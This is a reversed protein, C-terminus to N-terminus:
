FIGARIALATLATSKHLGLKLMLNAQHAQVTKVSIGLDLGIERSSHGRGIRALVERERATLRDRRSVADADLANAATRVPALNRQRRASSLLAFELQTRKIPKLVYQDVETAISRTLSDRDDFCTTVIIFVDPDLKRIEQSMVLGDMRPMWIDTIVVQAPQARFAALGEAGDTAIVVKGVWRALLLAMQERTDPDDEVYLLHLSKLYASGQEELTM